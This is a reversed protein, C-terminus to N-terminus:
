LVLSTISHHGHVKQRANEFCNVLNKFLHVKSINCYADATNLVSLYFNYRTVVTSRFISM